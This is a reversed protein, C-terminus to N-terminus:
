LKMWRFLGYVVPWMMASTLVSFGHHWGLIPQGSIGQIWMLMIFQIGLLLFIFLCQQLLPSIRLRQHMQGSVFVVLVCLLAHEGLLTGQFADLLLGTIWAVGIGVQTPAMIAWYILCLSLWAPRYDEIFDPLPLIM